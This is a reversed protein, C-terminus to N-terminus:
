VVSKRDTVKTTLISHTGVIPMTVHVMFHCGGSGGLTGDTLSIWAPASTTLTGGCETTTSTLVRVGLPLITNFAVGNRPLPNGNDLEFHLETSNGVIVPSVTFWASLSLGGGVAPVLGVPPMTAFAAGPMGLVGVLSMAAALVIRM